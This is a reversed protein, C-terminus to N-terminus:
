QASFGGDVVVASGTMASSEDSALFLAVNAIEEPEIARGIPQFDPLCSLVHELGGQLAAHADNFGTSLWGPCICNARINEKAYDLAVAKTFMLIGGKSAVYATLFKEAVFSNASGINVISGGGAKRLHPIAYKCTLYMSKLNVNMTRDWTAEDIDEVRGPLNVAANNCLVHLSGYKEITYDILSQVQDSQSVDMQFFHADGGLNQIEEAVGIGSEMIDTVIVKAGEQSFRKATAAGIGKAAGTVIATKGALRM